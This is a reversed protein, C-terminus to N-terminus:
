LLRLAGQIEVRGQASAPAPSGNAGRVPAGSGSVAKGGSFVLPLLEPRLWGSAVKLGDPLWGTPVRFAKDNGVDKECM